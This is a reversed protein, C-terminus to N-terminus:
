LVQYTWLRPGWTIILWHVWLSELISTEYEPRTFCGDLVSGRFADYIIAAHLTYMFSAVKSNATGASRKIRMERRLLSGRSSSKGALYRIKPCSALCGTRPFGPSAWPSWLYAVIAIIPPHHYTKHRPFLVPSPLVYPRHVTTNEISHPFSLHVNSVLAYTNKYFSSEPVLSDSSISGTELEM